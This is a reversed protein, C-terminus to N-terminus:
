IHYEKSYNFIESCNNCSIIGTKKCIVENNHNNTSLSHISEIENYYNENSFLQTTDIFRLFPLM